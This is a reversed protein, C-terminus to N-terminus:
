LPSVFKAIIDTSKDIIEWAKNKYRNEMFAIFTPQLDFSYDINTILYGADELEDINDSIDDINSPSPFSNPSNQNAKKKELFDKYLQKMLKETDNTFQM